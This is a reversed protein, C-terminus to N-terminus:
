EKEVVTIKEKGHKVTRAPEVLKRLEPSLCAYTREPIALTYTVIDAPDLNFDSVMKECAQLLVPQNWEVRKQIDSKILKDEVVASVTGEFKQQAQRVAKLNEQARKAIARELEAVIASAAAAESKAGDLKILLLELPTSDYNATLTNQRDM